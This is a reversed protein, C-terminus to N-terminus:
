HRNPLHLQPQRRQCRYGAMRRRSKGADAANIQAISNSKQIADELYKEFDPNRAAADAIANPSLDAANPEAANAAPVLLVPFIWRGSSNKM